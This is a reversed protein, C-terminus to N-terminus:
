LRISKRTSEKKAFNVIIQNELFVLLRVKRLTLSIKNHKLGRLEVVSKSFKFIQVITRRTALVHFIRFFELFKLLCCFVKKIFISM